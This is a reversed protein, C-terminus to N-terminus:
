YFVFTRDSTGIQDDSRLLRGKPGRAIGDWGMGDKGM